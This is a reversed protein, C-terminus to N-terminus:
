TLAFFVEELGGSVNARARLESLSGLGVVRGACLLLLRDCVREADTLQHISLVLSRGRDRTERLLAMVARVQHPDLGDFPEDLLLVPQPTLLAMALLLRKLTGKSLRDARKDLIAALDLAAVLPAVRAEELGYLARFLALLSRGSQEGFPRAGDPMYFVAEKRRAAPLAEGGWAVVGADTALLGALSELLTTKGAGNPGIIGVIEGPGADVSVGDLARYAGFTKVIGQAELRKM